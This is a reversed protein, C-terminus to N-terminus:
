SNGLPRSMLTSHESQPWLACRYPKGCASDTSPWPHGCQAVACVDHPWETGEDGPYLRGLVASASSKKAGKCRARVVQMEEDYHFLVTCSKSAAAGAVTVAVEGGSTAQVQM